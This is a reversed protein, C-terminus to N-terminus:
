KVVFDLQVLKGNRLVRVPVRREAGGRLRAWGELLASTDNLEIGGIAELRDASEFGLLALVSSPDVRGVRLGVLRGGEREPLARMKGSSLAEELAELAGRDVHTETPSARLVGRQIRPDIALPRTALKDREAERPADRHGFVHAVCVDAPRGADGRGLWVRDFGVELVRLGGLEGGRARLVKKGELALAALSGADDEGRVTFLARVGACDPPHGGSADVGGGSVRAGALLSGTTHDFPNRALLADASPRSPDATVAAEEASERAPPSALEASVLAMVGRAQFLAALVIAGATVVGLVARMGLERQSPRAAATRPSEADLPERM